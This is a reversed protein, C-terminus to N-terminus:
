MKKIIPSFDVPLQVSCANYFEIFEISGDNNVDSVRFTENVISDIEDSSLTIYNQYLFAEVMKHLEKRTIFGDNNNDYFRFLLQMRDKQPAKSSMMAVASVFEDFNIYGDKNGDFLSFFQEYFYGERLGLAQRFEEFDIIGDDKGSSSIRKFRDYLFNIEEPTLYTKKQLEVLENHTMDVKTSKNGM